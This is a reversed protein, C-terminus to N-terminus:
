SREEEVASATESVKIKQLEMRRNIVWWLGYMFLGSFSAVNPIEKLVNWTLHPFAQQFQEKKFDLQEIPVASLFLVSTGGAENLGYIYPHYTDPDAEIRRRAEKILDSREGFVTAGEECAEACAPLQGRSIREFCMDCKQVLPQKKNWQYKPVEFPCAVMCYRCGICKDPDYTVPGLKTKTFAGVPCVSACSPDNCHMCMRRTFIEEDDIEHTNLATFAHASLTAVDGEPHGHIERCAEVCAECGICRTTDILFGYSM